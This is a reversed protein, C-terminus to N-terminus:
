HLVYIDQVFIEILIHLIINESPKYLKIFSMPTLTSVFNSKDSKRM